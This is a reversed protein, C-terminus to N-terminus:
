RPSIFDVLTDAMFSHGGDAPHLLDTYILALTNDTSPTPIRRTLDLVCVNPNSGAVAFAATVYRQWGDANATGQQTTTGGQYLMQLVISCKTNANIGNILTQINTQFTTASTVGGRQFLWDNIGLNIIMLQPKETACLSAVTDAPMAADKTIFDVTGYSNHGGNYVWIGANEDGNLIMAGGINCAGSVGTLTLTHTGSTGLPIVLLKSDQATGAASVNTAAGGDVSWSFTGFAPATTYLIRATTGTVTVTATNGVGLYITYKGFGFAVQNGNTGTWPNYLAGKPLWGVGGGTGVTASPFRSRLRDRFLDTWRRAPANTSYYGETTSDGVIAIKAPAYSRNALAAYWARLATARQTHSVEEGRLGLAAYTANLAGATASDPTAINAANAADLQGPAVYNASGTIPAYAAAAAAPTTYTADAITKDFVYPLATWAATGDGTKRRGTDTELAPEGAALVPNTTTWNAATDRRVQIRNSM